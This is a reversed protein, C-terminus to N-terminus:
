RNHKAVDRSDDWVTPDVIVFGWDDKPAQPIPPCSYPLTGAAAGWTTNTRAIMADINATRALDAILARHAKRAAIFKLM